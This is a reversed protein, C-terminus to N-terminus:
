FVFATRSNSLLFSLQDFHKDKLYIQALNLYYCHFYQEPLKQVNQDVARTTNYLFPCSYFAFSLSSPNPFFCSFIEKTEKLPFFHLKWIRLINHSLDQQNRMKGTMPKKTFHLYYYYM